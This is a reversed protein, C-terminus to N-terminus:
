QSALVVKCKEPLGSIWMGKDDEDVLTVKFQQVQNQEDVTNVALDGANDVLLSSIPVNHSKVDGVKIKLTVAEGDVLKISNEGVAKVLFTGTQEDAAQAIFTIKAPISEKPNKVIVGGENSIIQSREFQSLYAKAEISSLDIFRGLTTYGAGVNSVLDGEQVTLEDIM